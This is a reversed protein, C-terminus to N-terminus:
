KISSTTPRAVSSRSGRRTMCMCWSITKSTTQAATSSQCRVTHRMPRRPTCMIVCFGIDPQDSMNMNMNMNMNMDMDMDMDIDMGMDMDMDMDM